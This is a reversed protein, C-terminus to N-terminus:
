HFPAPLVIIITLNSWQDSFLSPTGYTTGTIKLDVYYVGCCVNTATMSTYVVDSVHSAFPFHKKSSPVSLTNCPRVVACHAWNPIWEPYM